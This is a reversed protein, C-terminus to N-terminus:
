LLYSSHHHKGNQHLGLVLCSSTVCHLEWCGWFTAASVKGYDESVLQGEIDNLWIEVDDINRNFQQQESAEKLKAGLLLPLLSM